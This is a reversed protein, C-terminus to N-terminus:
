HKSVAPTVARDRSPWNNLGRPARCDAVIFSMGLLQFHALGGVQFNRGQNFNKIQIEMQSFVLGKGTREGGLRRRGPTAVRPNAGLHLQRPSQPLSQCLTGTMARDVPEEEQPRDRPDQREDRLPPSGLGHCPAFNCICGTSYTNQNLKGHLEGFNQRACMCGTRVFHARRRPIVVTLPHQTTCATRM